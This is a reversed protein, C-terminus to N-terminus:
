ESLYAKTWEHANCFDCATEKSIAKQVHGCNCCVMMSDASQQLIEKIVPDSSPFVPLGPKPEDSQYVSLIGCAEM